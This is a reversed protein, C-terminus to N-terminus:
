ASWRNSAPMAPTPLTALSGQRRQLLHQHVQQNRAQETTITESAAVQQWADRVNRIDRITQELLPISADRSSRVCQAYMAAYFEGLAEAPRGGVEPRLRAQLYSLIELVRGISQRRGEIDRAEVHEIASYLFRIMGDYLAVIMEVPNMVALTQQRYNM